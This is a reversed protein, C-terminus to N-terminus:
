DNSHEGCANVTWNSSTFVTLLVDYKAGFMNGWREKLFYTLM